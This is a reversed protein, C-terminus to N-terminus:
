RLCDEIDSIKISRQISRTDHKDYYDRTFDEDVKIFKCIKKYQLFTITPYNKELWNDLEIFDDSIDYGVLWPSYITYTDKESYDLVKENVVTIKCDKLRYMRDKFFSAKFVELDFLEIGNVISNTAKNDRNRKKDNELCAQTNQEFVHVIIERMDFSYLSLRSFKRAIESTTRFFGDIILIDNNYHNVGYNTKSSLVKYDQEDVNTYTVQAISYDIKKNKNEEFIKMALTTKGSAPLGYMIHIM